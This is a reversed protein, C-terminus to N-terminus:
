KLLTWPESGMCLWLHHNGLNYVQSGEIATNCTSTAVGSAIVSQTYGQVVLNTQPTTSGIGVKASGNFIADYNATGGSVSSVYVGVNSAGAGSNAGTVVTEIGSMRVSATSSTATNTAKIADYSATKATSAAPQTIDLTSAPFKSAGISWMGNRIRGTEVDLNEFLINGSSSFASNLHTDGTSTNYAIIFKSGAANSRLLGSKNVSTNTTLSM